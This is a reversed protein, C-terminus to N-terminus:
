LMSTCCVLYGGNRFAHAEQFQCLTMGFLFKVGDHPQKPGSGSGIRYSPLLTVAYEYLMGETGFHM